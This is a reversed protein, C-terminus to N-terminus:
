KLYMSFLSFALILENTSVKRDCSITAFKLGDPTFCLSSPFTKHRVFEFLDTDLKSEFNVCKPFSYDGKSGSWYEIVGAKDASLSVEFVPNYQFFLLFFSIILDM